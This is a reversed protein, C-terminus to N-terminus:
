KEPSIYGRFIYKLVAVIPLAAIVGPIGFLAGFISMWVLIEFSSLELLQGQVKPVLYLNEFQQIVIYLVVIAFVLLPGHEVAVVLAPLLAILPGIVPIFETVAAIIALSFIGDIQVGFIWQIM